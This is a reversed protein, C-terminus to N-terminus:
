YIRKKDELSLDVFVETRLTPFIINRTLWLSHFDATAGVSGDKGSPTIFDIRRTPVIKVCGYYRVAEIMWGSYDAPILLAFPRKLELCKEFFQRKRSYPPNTVIVVDGIDDTSYELFDKPNEGRIDTGLVKFGNESLVKLILGDGCACDWVHFYNKFDNLYPILLETAYRPTQFLDRDSPRYNIRTKNSM